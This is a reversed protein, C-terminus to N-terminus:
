RQFYHEFEDMLKKKTFNEEFYRRSNSGYKGISTSKYLERIADTLAGADGITVCRGCDAEQIIRETEGSASALIPMGCAMYSQLKAPITWTFLETDMFSIYAADCLSLIDPIMEAPQRDIMIFKDSVGADEIEQLLKAKYRGDGVIVFRVSEDKLLEAAKPLIQLGQAYGINGTFAIKFTTTDFLAEPYGANHSDGSDKLKAIAEQRDVLRYFEEAYQPWYHVKHPLVTKKRGLVAKV